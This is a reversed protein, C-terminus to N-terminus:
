AILKNVEEYFREKLASFGWMLWSIFLQDM